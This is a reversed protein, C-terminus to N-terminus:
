RCLMDRFRWRPAPMDVHHRYHEGAASLADRWRDSVAYRGCAAKVFWGLVAGDDPDRIPEVRSRCHVAGRIPARTM